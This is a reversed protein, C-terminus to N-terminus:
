VNPLKDFLQRTNSEIIDEVENPKVGKIKSIEGIIYPINAPSNQKGRHPEPTLYPSDTEVVFHKLSNRKVVEIINSANKFTVIGGIGLFYGLKIFKDAYEISGNFCHIIGRLKYERLITYIDNTADRNHIIVPANYDEAIKLQEAFLRKQEEKNDKTWYYDLGIEGIGLIKPHNINKKIFQMDENKINKVESPHYGLTGYINPYKNVINMIEQNSKKDVGNVIMIKVNNSTAEKIIAKLDKYYENYLHCHTDIYM